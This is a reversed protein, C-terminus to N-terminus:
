AEAELTRRAQLNAKREEETVEPRGLELAQITDV